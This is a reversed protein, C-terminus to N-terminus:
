AIKILQNIKNLGHQKITFNIVDDNADSFSTCEIPESEDISNLLRSFLERNNNEVIKSTNPKVIEYDTVEIELLEM